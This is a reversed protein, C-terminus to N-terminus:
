IWITHLKIFLKVKKNEYPSWGKKLLEEVDDRLEKLAKIRESKTHYLKNINYYIPNQQM